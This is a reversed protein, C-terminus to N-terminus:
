NAYAQVHKVLSEAIVEGLRVPVANGILRGMRNFKIPAGQHRSRMRRPSRRSCPRRGYGFYRSGAGSTLFPRQRVRFMSYHDDPCLLSGSWAAM